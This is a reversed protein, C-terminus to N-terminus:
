YSDKGVALGSTAFGIGHGSDLFLKALFHKFRILSVADDGSCDLIQPIHHFICSFKGFLIM